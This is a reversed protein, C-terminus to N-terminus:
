MENISFRYKGSATKPIKDTYRFTFSMSDGFKSRLLNKLKDEDASAFKASVVLNVIIHNRCTQVLQVQEIETLSSFLLSLVAIGDIRNGSTDNLIDTARGGVLDLQRSSRGCPCNGYIWRGLDEIKYRIFPMAYNNLDTIVIDGHDAPNNKEDLIEVILNDENVHLGDHAPCESAIIGVERSGYRNFVKCRFIKEILKRQHMFLTDASTIIGKLHPIDTIGRSEIFRAFEYLSSAYAVIFQPTMRQIQSVLNMMDFDSFRYTNFLSENYLTFRLRKKLKSARSLDLPAGWLYITKAGIERGAWGDSRVRAAHTYDESFQSHYFSMPKGTSGGTQYLRVKMRETNTSILRKLNEKINAKTLVPLRTLDERTIIDSPKLHLRTFHERYYPCHNYAYAVLKRLKKNQSRDISSRSLWQDNELERLKCIIRRGTISEYIPYIFNTLLKRRTM